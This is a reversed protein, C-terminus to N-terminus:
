VHQESCIAASAPDWAPGGSSHDRDDNKDADQSHEAKPDPILVPLSSGHGHTDYQDYEAHCYSSQATERGTGITM